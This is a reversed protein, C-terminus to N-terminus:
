IKTKNKFKNNISLFHKTFNYFWYFDGYYLYYNVWKFDKAAKLLKIDSKEQSAMIEKQSSMDTINM